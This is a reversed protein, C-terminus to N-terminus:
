SLLSDLSCLFEISCQFLLTLPIIKLPDKGMRQRLSARMNDIYKTPTGRDKLDIFTRYVDALKVNFGQEFFATLVSIECKGHNLSGMANIAYILEVLSTKDDTWELTTNGVMGLQGWNPNNAKITLADLETKLFVELRDNAIIEAVMYDKNTSFEPETFIILNDLHLHIDKRRRVFYKDDLFTSKMRYYRYFELHNNFFLTLEALEDRFYEQQSEISGIPRKSEINSVKVYYILQSYIGPKIEKFFQIEEDDSKFTHNMLFSKLENLASEICTISQLAKKLLETEELDIKQLQSNLKKNLKTVFHNM